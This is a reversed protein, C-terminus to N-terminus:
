FVEAAGPRESMDNDEVGFKKVDEAQQPNLSSISHFKNYTDVKDTAAGCSM